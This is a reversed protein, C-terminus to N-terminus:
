DYSFYSTGAWAFDVFMAGLLIVLVLIFRFAQNLREDLPRRKVCTLILNVLQYISSVVAFAIAVAGFASDYQFRYSNNVAYTTYYGSGRTTLESKISLQPSAIAMIIFLATLAIFMNCIFYNITLAKSPKDGVDYTNEKIAKDKKPKPQSYGYVACGCKPCIVAEDNLENGCHTCYKM